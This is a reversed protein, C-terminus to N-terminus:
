TWLYFYFFGILAGIGVLMMLAYNQLIGTQLHRLATSVRALVKWVANLTGDVLSADALNSLDSVGLTVKAVGNVAGDIVERDFANLGKAGAITGSVVSANYIEDVFFKNYLTRYLGPWATAFPKDGEPKGWYM